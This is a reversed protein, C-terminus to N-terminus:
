SVLSSSQFYATIPFSILSFNRRLAMSSSSARERANSSHLCVLFDLWIVRLRLYVVFSRPIFSTSIPNSSSISDLTCFRLHLGMQLSVSSSFISTSCRHRSPYLDWCSTASAIFILFDATLLRTLFAFALILKMCSSLVFSSVFCCRYATTTASVRPRRRCYFTILLAETTFCMTCSFWPRSTCSWCSNFINRSYSPNLNLLTLRIAKWPLM